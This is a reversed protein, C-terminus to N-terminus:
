EQSQVCVGKRVNSPPGYKHHQPDFRSRSYALCLCRSTLRVQIMITKAAYWFFSFSCFLAINKAWYLYLPIVSFPRIILFYTAVQPQPYLLIYTECTFSHTQDRASGFFTWTNLTSAQYINPIQIGSNLGWRQRCQRHDNVVYNFIKRMKKHTHICIYVYIYLYVHVYIYMCIYVSVCM